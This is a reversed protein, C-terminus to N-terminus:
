RIREPIPNKKGILAQQDGIRDVGIQVQIGTGAEVVQLGRGDLIADADSRVGATLGQGQAARRWSLIRGVVHQQGFQRAKREV